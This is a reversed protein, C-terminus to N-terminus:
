RHPAEKSFYLGCSCQEGTDACKRHRLGTTLNEIAAGVAVGCMFTIFLILM